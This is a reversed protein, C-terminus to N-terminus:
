KGEKYIFGDGENIPENRENFYRNKINIENLDSFKIMTNINEKFFLHFSSHKKM